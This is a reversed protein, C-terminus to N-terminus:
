EEPKVLNTNILIGYPPFWVPVGNGDGKVDARITSAGPVSMMNQIYGANRHTPLSTPSSIYIDGNYRKAVQEVRIRETVESARAIFHDVRIGYQKEFAKMREVQPPGSLASYVAVSGEKKAAEIVKTWEADQAHAAGAFLMLLFAAVRM